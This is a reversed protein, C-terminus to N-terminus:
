RLLVFKRVSEVRGARARILYIGSAVPRGDMDCGDWTFRYQGAGVKRHVILRVSRGLLNYICVHLYDSTAMDVTIRTAANGPNPWPSLLFLNEPPRSEKERSSHQLGRGTASHAQEAATRVEKLDRGAVLAFRVTAPMTPSAEGVDVALVQAWDGETWSEASGTGETMWSLKNADSYEVESNNLARAGVVPLDGLAVIGGAGVNDNAGTMYLLRLGPDYGVSNLYLPHIDWDCFIGAVYEQSGYSTPSLVFEMIVYNGEASSSTTMQTVRVGVAEGGAGADTYQAAFIQNEGSTLEGRIEGGAETEFDYRNMSRNGYACDSVRVRDTVLLSGHYLLGLPLDDVRVGDPIEIGNAYDLFGVAGFDTFTATMNGGRQARWHPDVPVQVTITDRWSDVDVAFFLPHSGRTATAAVSIAFPGARFPGTTQGPISIGSSSVVSDDFQLLEITVESADKGFLELDLYLDVNEGPEIVDDGDEDEFSLGDYAVAPRDDFTARWANLRGVHVDPGPEGLLHESGQHLRARVKETTLGPSDSLLLAVVGSVIPTAMSTGSILGYGGITTSFVDVGPAAIDLWPGSNSFAAFSDDVDTAAVAIVGEYAAPYFPYNSGENGAAAVLIVGQALAYDIADREFTSGGFGGFSMSIVDAGNDVAYIIADVGADVLIDLGLGARLAMLQVGPAMGTIGVGNSHVAAAIGAVHTGHNIADVDTLERPAAPDGDVDYADWGHIDDVYGNGDDDIGGVGNAEPPNSWFSHYLDPHAMDFGNDIVALVVDSADSVRDWAAFADVTSLHWQFNMLPDDPLSTTSKTCTWRRPASEAIEVDEMQSIESATKVADAGAELEVVMWRLLRSRENRPQVRVAKRFDVAMPVRHLWDDKKFSQSSSEENLLIFVKPSAQARFSPCLSAFLIVAAVVLIAKSNAGAVRRLGASVSTRRGRNMLFMLMGEIATKSFHTFTM